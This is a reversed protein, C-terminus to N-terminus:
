AIATLPASIRGADLVLIESRPCRLGRNTARAVAIDLLALRDVHDSGCAGLEPDLVGALGTSALKRRVIPRLEPAIFSQVTGPVEALMTMMARLGAPAAVGQRPWLRAFATALAPLYEPLLLRARVPDVGNVVLMDMAVLPDAVEGPVVDRRPPRGTLRTFAVRHAAPDVSRWACGSGHLPHLDWVVLRAVSDAPRENSLILELPLDTPLTSVPQVTM